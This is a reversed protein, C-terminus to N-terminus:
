PRGAMKGGGLGELSRRGGLARRTSQNTTVPARPWHPHRGRACTPGLAPFSSPRQPPRRAATRSPPARLLLVRPDRPRLGESQVAGRHMHLAGCPPVAFGRHGCTAYLPLGSHLGGPEAVLGWEWFGSRRSTGREGLSNPGRVRLRRPRGARDSATSEGGIGMERTRSSSSFWAPRQGVQAAEPWEPALSSRAFFCGPCFSGAWSPRSCCLRCRPWGPRARPGLGPAPPGPLNGQPSGPAAAAVRWGHKEAPIPTAGAGKKIHRKM